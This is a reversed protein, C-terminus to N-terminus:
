AHIPQAFLLLRHDNEIRLSFTPWSDSFFLSLSLSLPEAHTLYINDFFYQIYVLVLQTDGKLAAPRHTTAVTLFAAALMTEKLDHIYIIRGYANAASSM